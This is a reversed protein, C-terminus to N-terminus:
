RKGKKVRKRFSSRFIFKSEVPITSSIKRGEQIEKIIVDALVKGCEAWCPDVTSLVPHDFGATTGEINDFGVIKIQEGPEIGHEKLLDYVARAGIDSCCWLLKRSVLEDFCRVVESKVDRYSILANGSGCRLVIDQIEADPPATLLLNGQKHLSRGFHIFASSKRERASTEAWATRYSSTTDRAVVPIGNIGSKVFDFSVVPQRSRTIAELIRDDIFQSLIVYGDAVSSKLFDVIQGSSDRDNLYLMTLAFGHQQIASGFASTCISLFPSPYYNGSSHNEALMGIKFTKGTSFSRGTFTPHYNLEECLTFIRERTEQRVKDRNRVDFARSVTAKSLGLKQSIESISPM